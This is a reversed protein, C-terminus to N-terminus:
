PWILAKYQIVLKDSGLPAKDSSFFQQKTLKFPNWKLFWNPQLLIVCDASKKNRLLQQEALGAKERCTKREAGKEESIGQKHQLLSGAVQNWEVACAQM